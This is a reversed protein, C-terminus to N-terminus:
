ILNFTPPPGRAGRTCNWRIERHLCHFKTIFVASSARRSPIHIWTMVRCTRDVYGPSVDCRMMQGCTSTNTRVLGSSWRGGGGEEGEGSLRWSCIERAEVGSLCNLTVPREQWHWWRGSHSWTEDLWGALAPRAQSPLRPTGPFLPAKLNSLAAVAAKWLLAAPAWPRRSQLDQWEAFWLCRQRQHLFWLPSRTLEIRLMKVATLARLPSFFFFLGSFLLNMVKEELGRLM